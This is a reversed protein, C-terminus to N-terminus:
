RKLVGCFAYLVMYLAICFVMVGGIYSWDACGDIPQYEGFLQIIADKMM